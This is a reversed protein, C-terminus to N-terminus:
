LLLWHNGLWCSRQWLQVENGNSLGAPQARCRVWFMLTPHKGPATIGGPDSECQAGAQANFHPHPHGPAGGGLCCRSTLFPLSLSTLLRRGAWSPPDPLNSGSLGSTRKRGLGNWSKACSWMVCVRFWKPQDEQMLVWESSCFVM